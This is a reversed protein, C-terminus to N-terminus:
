VLWEKTRALHHYDNYRLVRDSLPSPLYAINPDAFATLLQTLGALAETILHEIDVLLPKYIGAIEGGSLYIYLLNAVELDTKNNSISFGGHKAILAELIMQSSIGREISKKDPITGTKYDIITIQNDKIEIRDAKAVLTFIANNILIEIKGQAEILVQDAVFSYENIIWNAIREFRPWWLNKVAPRELLDALATRGCQLLQLYTQSNKELLAFLELAKHIFNGFEAVTPDADIAEIKKLMLIKSAYISYPDRMLKEINTVSLKTPRATIPPKPEPPLIPIIAKPQHLIKAWWAWNNSTIQELMDLKKAVAELRLLWRSPVTQAGSQKNARTLFVQKAACLFYFDFGLQGIKQELEPLGLEQRMKRSLWPDAKVYEPWVGENLGGIIITDQHYFRSETPSLIALRPHRGYRPRYVMGAYLKELLNLYSNPSIENIHHSYNLLECFSNSIKFGEDGRWLHDVGSVTPTKAMTEAFDLHAVLLKSFDVQKLKVLKVMASSAQQLQNVFDILGTQKKQKLLKIINNLGPKIRIGRLVSLELQRVLSRFEVAHYGLCAYPHKLASLMETPNFDSEVMAIILRLFVFAPLTSIATGASDDIDIDWKTLITMVRTALERDSTVLAATKKPVELVSRMIMAIVTAEHQSHECTIYHLNDFAQANIPKLKSWKHSTLAPRMIESLLHLRYNSVSQPHWASVEKRKIGLYKLLKKLNYQPHFSDIKNYSESDMITDLAPLIVHGHPLNAIVKLMFATVKITGTSGAAIIPYNPPIDQWLRAQQMILENRYTIPDQMNKALLAQPWFKIVINLIQLIQQWHEALDDEILNELKSLDIEERQLENLLNALDIALSAAQEINAVKTQAQHQWILKTLIIKQELVSIPEKIELMQRNALSAISLDEVEIDGIPVIKPLLIPKGGSHRLFMERLNKCARRSPLLITIDAYQWQGKFRQDIGRILSDFFSQNAEIHYINM